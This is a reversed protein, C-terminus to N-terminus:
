CCRPARPMRCADRRFRYMREKQVRENPRVINCLMETHSATIICADVNSSSGLDNFIGASIATCVLDLVEPRQPLSLHTLSCALHSLSLLTLLLSLSFPVLSQLLPPAPSLPRLLINSQPQKTCAPITPTYRPSVYRWTAVLSGFGMTM